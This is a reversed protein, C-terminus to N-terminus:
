RIWGRQRFRPKLQEVIEKVAQEVRGAITSGGSEEGYVKVGTSVILGLPNATAVAVAAPVAVGPGKSGGAEVTGGGLKRLGRATMQFGEVAATMESAGSGFGIAVRKVASGEEVSLLYGRIVLDNIQPTTRASAREAPLGMGRIEAVLKEAIEAGVRRGRAVHEATQPTQHEAAHSALASDAPVDARTAAFDYVWIHDPRPIKETVLIQRDTVKTSACGALAVAVFLCSVLPSGPKM